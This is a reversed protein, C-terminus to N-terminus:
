VHESQIPWAPLRACILAYLARPPRRGTRRIGRQVVNLAQSAGQLAKHLSAADLLGDAYLEGADIARRSREDRILDGLRRSCAVSMLRLKRETAKGRLFELMMTPDTCSNWESETM